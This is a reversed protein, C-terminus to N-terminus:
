NTKKARRKDLYNSIANMAESLRAAATNFRAKIKDRQEVPMLSEPDHGKAELWDARMAHDYETALKAVRREYYTYSRRLSRSPRDPKRQPKRPGTPNLLANSAAGTRKTKRKSPSPPKSASPASQSVRQQCELVWAEDAALREEWTKAARYRQEPTMPAAAPAAPQPAERREREMRLRAGIDISSGLVPDITIWATPESAPAPAPAPPIEAQDQPWGERNMRLRYQLLAIWGSRDGAALVRAMEAETDARTQPWSPDHATTTGAGKTVSTGEGVTDLLGAKSDSPNCDNQARDDEIEACSYDRINCNVLTGDTLMRAQSYAVQQSYTKEFPAFSQLPRHKAEDSYIGGSWQSYQCSRESGTKSLYSAINKLNTPLDLDDYLPQCFVRFPGPNRQRLYSVTHNLDHGRFAILIHAHLMATREDAFFSPVVGMAEALKQKRGADMDKPRYLDIEATGVWVAGRSPSISGMHSLDERFRDWFAAAEASAWCALPEADERPTGYGATSLGPEVMQAAIGITLFRIDSPDFKAFRNAARTIYDRKDALDDLLYSTYSPRLISHDLLEFASFDTKSPLKKKAMQGKTQNQTACYRIMPPKFSVFLIQKRNIEIKRGGRNNM